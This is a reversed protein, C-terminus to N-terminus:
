KKRRARLYYDHGSHSGHPQHKFGMEDLLAVVTDAQHADAAEMRVAIEEDPKVTRLRQKLQEIRQEEIENGMDFFIDAM